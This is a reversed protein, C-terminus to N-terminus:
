ALLLASRALRELSAGLESALAPRVAHGQVPQGEHQVQLRGEAVEAEVAALLAARHYLEELPVSQATDVRLIVVRAQGSDRQSGEM